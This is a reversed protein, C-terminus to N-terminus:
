FQNLKIKLIIYIEFMKFYKGQVYGEMKCGVTGLLFNQYFDKFMFLIPCITLVFFDAVAMNALLMNTPTQLARNRIIVNLLM